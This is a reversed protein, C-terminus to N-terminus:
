APRSGDPLLWADDGNRLAALQAADANGGCVIAVVRLPDDETRGELWEAPLGAFVRAAAAAGAPEVAEDTARVLRAQARLVAEDDITDVRAVLAEAIAHAVRGAGPPTLGQIASTIERGAGPPTLGQIASTIEVATPAGSALARTMGAAGVPEVGLVRRPGRATPAADAFALAIGALMGGGGIPAVFLDVEPWQELVELGVSAQGAVTVASDYPPAAVWGEDRVARVVAADADARTPTLVVEAGHARCAEIKSPYSNEPMYVRVRVGAREGAWALAKAHNGSSYAVLGPAGSSRDFVLAHNAAGRAKFAGTAQRNELKLRLEVRPDGADFPLLPTRELWPAIRARTAALADPTLLAAEADTLAALM